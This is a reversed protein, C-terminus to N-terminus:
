TGDMHRICTTDRIPWGEKVVLKLMGGGGKVQAFLLVSVLIMKMVSFQFKSLQVACCYGTQVASYQIKILILPHIYPWIYGKEQLLEM